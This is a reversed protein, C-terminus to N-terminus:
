RTARRYYILRALGKKVPELLPDPTWGEREYFRRAREHNEVVRLRAHDHGRDGIWGAAAALLDAAVGAGWAAPDVYLMTVEPLDRPLDLVENAQAVGLVTGNEDVGVLVVAEEVGIGRGWDFDRARQTALEELVEAELFPEYAGRWSRRYVREMEPIDAPTALRLDHSM